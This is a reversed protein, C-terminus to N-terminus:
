GAIAGTGPSRGCYWVSIAANGERRECRGLERAITELYQGLLAAKPGDTHTEFVWIGSYQGLGTLEAPYDEVKTFHTKFGQEFPLMPLQCTEPLTRNYYRIATQAHHTVVLMAQDPECREATALFISKWGVAERSEYSLTSVGMAVLLVLAAPALYRGSASAVGFAVVILFFPIFPVFFRPSFSPEIQSVLFILVIPLAGAVASVAILKQDAALNRISRRQRFAFYIAAGGALAGVLLLGRRLLDPAEGAAGTYLFSLDLLARLGPETLWSLQGGEKRLVFFALPAFSITVALHSWLWHWFQRRDELMLLAVIGLAFVGLAIFLHAHVGLVGAVAYLLWYRAQRDILAGAWAYWLVAMVLLALAYGRIEVGYRILFFHSFFLILFLGAVRLGLHKRLPLYLFVAAAAYALFSFTRLWAESSSIASWVKLLVYYLGMNAEYRAMFSFLQDWELSIFYTTLAEDFWVGRALSTTYGSLLALMFALLVGAALVLREPRSGPEPRM